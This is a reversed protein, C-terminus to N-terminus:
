GGLRGSLVSIVHVAQQPDGSARVMSGGAAAPTVRLTVTSTGAGANANDSGTASAQQNNLNSFHKQLFSKSSGLTPRSNVSLQYTHRAADQATVSGLGGQQLALGIRKYATDVDGPLRMQTSNAAVAPAAQAPTQASAQSAPGSPPPITLAASASPRDMNPPIQLPNEQKAKKWAHQSRFAGCGSLVLMSMILAILLKKM